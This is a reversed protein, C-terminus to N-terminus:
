KATYLFPRRFMGGMHHPNNIRLAITNKGANLKGTLDVDWEFAYDNIWWMANQPRHAVLHGNVYLWCENFLGPFRIHVKGKAAGGSLETDTRYWAIGNYYNWDPYLVGQAQAYSDTRLMEWRSGCYVHSEISGKNKLSNWETLDIPGTAWRRVIGTDVPDRRFAWEIPLKAILTGKTGDTFALLDRYQKVEGPWWAPGGAETEAAVGIVRTTFTTNMAALEKRAALGKEGAAVAAKYDCETAAATCMAIYNELVGFSLRTFKMREALTADGGKAAAEGAELHKRLEKILAPTYISTAVFYEHETIITDEWAQFIAGWYAAMPKAAAGYSKEYFEALLANMDADPNWMLQGRVFLNLFVTGIAGRSETAVGLIGAKRYHKMNDRITAFAPNPIDRWVLMGQDYDYIAVRGQMVESWRYLMDRYEQQPPSRRDDMGHNPDIDIPALYAILPKAAVINRQPPITINSYALFGLKTPSNPHQKMLIEAVKNYFVMFGDTLAPQIFYKDFLGAQLEKDRPSDSKYVGDEMGLSISPVGKAYDAAIKKAVHEATADEAIPVDMITKGPPVLEKTYAGIAHGSHVNVNNMFNRHKFEERGAQEGNWAIWYNRIEFPPAYAYDLKGVTLKPLKPICEGFESPFYWRCGWRQLLEAVAFYHSDDNTGALYVRNAARKLVIADAQLEPNKKAVRDLEKKLSAEAKLAESGVILLPTKKALAGAVAEVTNAVAAKAGSMKEIYLALDQAARIEWPGAQPSVVITAESRGQDAIVLDDALSIGSSISTFAVAFLCM